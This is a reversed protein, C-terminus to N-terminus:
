SVLFDYKIFCNKAKYARERQFRDFSDTNESTRTDDFPIARIRGLVLIGGAAKYKIQERCDTNESM